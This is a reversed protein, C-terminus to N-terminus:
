LSAVSARAVLRTPIVRHRAPGAYGKLRSVLLEAV